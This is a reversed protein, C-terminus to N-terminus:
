IDSHVSIHRVTYVAFIFTIALKFFPLIHSTIQQEKKLDNSLCFFM